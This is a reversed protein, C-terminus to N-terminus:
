SLQIAYIRPVLARHICEDKLPCAICDRMPPPMVLGGKRQPSVPFAPSEPEDMSMASVIKKIVAKAQDAHDNLTHDDFLVRIIRSDEDVSSFVWFFFPLGGTLWSYHKAQLMTDQKEALRDLDWGADNWKDYLLASYKLDVVICGEHVAGYEDMWRCEERSPMAPNVQFYDKGMDHVTYSQVVEDWHAHDVQVIIDINGHAGERAVKLGAKLIKMGWHKLYAKFNQAQLVPLIWDPKIEGTTYVRGDSASGSRKYREPEPVSDGYAPAAGTALYEFYQGKQAAEGSQSKLNYNMMLERFVIGCLDGNEYQEFAKMTSQSLKWTAPNFKNATRNGDKDYRIKLNSVEVKMKQIKFNYNNPPSFHHLPLRDGGDM